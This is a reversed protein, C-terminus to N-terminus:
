LNEATEATIFSDAQKMYEKLLDYKELSIAERLNDIITNIEKQQEATYGEENLLKELKGSCM